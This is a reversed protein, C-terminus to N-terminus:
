HPRALWVEARSLIQGFNIQAGAREETIRRDDLAVREVGREPFERHVDLVDYFREARVETGFVGTVQPLPLSAFECSRIMSPIFSNSGAKRTVDAGAQIQDQDSLAACEHM